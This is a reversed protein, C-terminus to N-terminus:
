ILPTGDGTPTLIIDDGPTLLIDDGLSITVRLVTDEPCHTDSFMDEQQFVPFRLSTRM